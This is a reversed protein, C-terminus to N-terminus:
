CIECGGEVNKPWRWKSLSPFESAMIMMQTWCHGAQNAARKIHEILTVQEPPLGDIARDKQIFMHKRAENVYEQSSTRDYLLVM